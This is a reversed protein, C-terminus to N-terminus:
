QSIDELQQFMRDFVKNTGLKYTPHPPGIGQYLDWQIIKLWPKIPEFIHM